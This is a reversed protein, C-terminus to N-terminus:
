FRVSLISAAINEASVNYNGSSIKQTLEDVKDQRVESESHLKQLMDKFSQAQNSLTLEDKRQVGRSALVSSVYRTAGASYLNAASNVNNVIM